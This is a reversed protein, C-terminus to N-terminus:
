ITNTDCAYLQWDIPVDLLAHEIRWQGINPLDFVAMLSTVQQALLSIQRFISWM